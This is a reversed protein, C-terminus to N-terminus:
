QVSFLSGVSCGVGIADQTCTSLMALNLMLVVLVVLVVLASFFLFFLYLSTSVANSIVLYNFLPM